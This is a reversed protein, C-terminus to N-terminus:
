RHLFFYFIGALALLAVLIGFIKGSASTEYTIPSQNVEDPNSVTPNTSSSLMKDSQSFSDTSLSAIDKAFIPALSGTRRTTVNIKKNVVIDLGGSNLRETVQQSVDPPFKKLLMDVLKSEALGEIKEWTSSEIPEHGPDGHHVIYGGGPKSEIHYSLKLDNTELLPKLSPFQTALDKAITEQIKQQVEERTAGEIPPASSDKCTAIFGGGPKPEICYLFKTVVHKLEM